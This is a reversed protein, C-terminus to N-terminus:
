KLDHHVMGNRHVSAPVGVLAVVRVLQKQPDHVFGNRFVAFPLIDPEKDTSRKRFIAVYGDPGHIKEQIVTGDAQLIPLVIVSLGQVDSLLTEERIAAYAEGIPKGVNAEKEL